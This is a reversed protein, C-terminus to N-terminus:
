PRAVAGREGPQQSDEMGPYYQAHNADPLRPLLIGDLLFPPTTRIFIVFRFLMQGCGARPDRM